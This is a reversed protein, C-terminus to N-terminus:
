TCPYSKYQRCRCCSYVGGGSSNSTGGAGGGAVVLVEVSTIGTPCTWTTSGTSTFSVITDSPRQGETGSSPTIAGTGAVLTNQLKAM